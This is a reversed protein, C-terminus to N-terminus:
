KTDVLYLILIIYICKVPLLIEVTLTEYVACSKKYCKQHRFTVAQCSGDKYSTIAEERKKPTLTNERLVKHCCQYSVGFESRGRCFILISITFSSSPPRRLRELSLGMSKRCPASHCSEAVCAYLSELEHFINTFNRPCRTTSHEPKHLALSNCHLM